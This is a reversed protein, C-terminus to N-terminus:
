PLDCAQGRCQPSPTHVVLPEPFCRTLHEYTVIHKHRLKGLLLHFRPRGPGPPGKWGRQESRRHMLRCDGCWCRQQTSGPLRPKLLLFIPVAWTGQKAETALSQKRFLPQKKGAKGCVRICCFEVHEEWGSAQGWLSSMHTSPTSMEGTSWLSGAPRFGVSLLPLELSQSCLSVPHRMGRSSESGFTFRGVAPSAPHSPCQISEQRHCTRCTSLLPHAGNRVEKNFAYGLPVYQCFKLMLFEHLFGTMQHWTM